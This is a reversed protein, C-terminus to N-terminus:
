VGEDENWEHGTFAQFEKEARKRDPSGLRTGRVKAAAAEFLRADGPHVIVIGPPHINEETHAEGREDLVAQAAKFRDAKTVGSATRIALADNAAKTAAEVKEPDGTLVANALAHKANEYDHGHKEAEALTTEAETKKTM